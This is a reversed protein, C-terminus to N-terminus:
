NTNIQLIFIQYMGLPKLPRPTASNPTSKALLNNMGIPLQGRGIGALFIHSFPFKLNRVFQHQEHMKDAELLLLPEVFAATMPNHEIM